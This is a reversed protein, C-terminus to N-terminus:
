SWPKEGGKNDRTTPVPSPSSPSRANAQCFVPWSPRTSMAGLKKEDIYVLCLYKM